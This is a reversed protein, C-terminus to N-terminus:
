YITYIFSRRRPFLAEVISAAAADVRVDHTFAALEAVSRYGLVLPVLVDPPIRVSVQEAPDRRDVRILAGDNWELSWAERYVSIALCGSYGRHASAAIRLELVPALKRLLAAPDVFRFQWAYASVASGGLSRGLAVIESEPDLELKVWPKGDAEARRGLGAFLALCEPGALPSVESVILGPGFGRRHLRFYGIVGDAGREVCWTEGEGATQGGVLYRWVADSRVSHLGAGLPASLERGLAALRPIDGAVAPRLRLGAAPPLRLLADLPVRFDPVLPVAYSYGFQRYFYPIGQIHTLDFGEAALLADFAAVLRRVLGRRRCAPDTGVIGMEGSRLLVGDLSLDWPILCLASVIPGGAGREVLLWHHRQTHPHERLLRRTFVAVEDDHVRGNFQALREVDGDSEVAVLRLGDGLDLSV